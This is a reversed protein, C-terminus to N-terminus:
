LAKGRHVFDGNEKHIKAHVHQTMIQLNEPRNDHRDANIHHVIEGKELPRGLMQEAVVRHEHRGFYKLYSNENATRNKKQAIRSSQRRIAEPTIYEPDGHRRVRQKLKQCIRCRRSGDVNEPIREHGNQCHTARWGKAPM